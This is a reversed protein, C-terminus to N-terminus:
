EVVKTHKSTVDDGHRCKRVVGSNPPLEPAATVFRVCWKAILM